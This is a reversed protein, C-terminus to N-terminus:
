FRAALGVGAGGPGFALVAHVGDMPMADGGLVTAALVTLVGVGALAFGAEAAPRLARPDAAPWEARTAWLACAGAGVSTFPRALRREDRNAEETSPEVLSLESAGPAYPLLLLSLDAPAKARHADAPATAALSLSAVILLASPAARAPSM